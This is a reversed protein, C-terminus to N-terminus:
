SAGGPNHATPRIMDLLRALDVVDIANDAITLRADRATDETVTHLRVVDDFDRVLAM